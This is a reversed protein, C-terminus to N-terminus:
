APSQASRLDSGHGRLRGYWASAAPARGSCRCIRRGEASKAVSWCNTRGSRCLDAAAEGQERLGFFDLVRNLALEPLYDTVRPRSRMLERLVRGAYHELEAADAPERVSRQAAAAVEAALTAVTPSIPHMTLVGIHAIVFQEIRIRPL